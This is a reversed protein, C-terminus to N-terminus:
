ALFARLAAHTAAPAELQPVHGCDLEHHESAPLEADPRGAATVLFARDAEFVVDASTGDDDILRLRAGERMPTFLEPDYRSVLREFVGTQTATM